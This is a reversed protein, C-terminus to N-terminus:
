WCSLIAGLELVNKRALDLGLSELHQLRAINDQQYAPSSFDAYIKRDRLVALEQKWVRLRRAVTRLFGAKGSPGEKEANGPKVATTAM